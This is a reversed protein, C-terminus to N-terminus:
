VGQAGRVYGHLPLVARRTTPAHLLDGGHREHAGDEGTDRHEGSRSRRGVRRKNELLSRVAEDRRAVDGGDDREDLLVALARDHRRSVCLDADSLSAGAVGEPGSADRLAEDRRDDHLEDGLALEPQVVAQALEERSPEALSALDAQAVQEVM